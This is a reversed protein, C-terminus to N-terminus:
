ACYRKLIESEQKKVGDIWGNEVQGALGYLCKWGTVPNTRVVPSCLRRM